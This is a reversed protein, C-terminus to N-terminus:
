CRPQNDQGSGTRIAVPGQRSPAGGLLERRFKHAVCDCQAVVTVLTNSTCTHEPWHQRARGLPM